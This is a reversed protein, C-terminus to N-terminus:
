LAKNFLEIIRERINEQPWKIRYVKWGQEYLLADKRRDSQARDEQMHQKGDIEIAIKKDTCAFDIFYKGIRLEREYSINMEELIRMAISEPYSHSFKDRIRWGFDEGAAHRQYAIESLNKSMDKRYELDKWKAQASCSRSCTNQHRKNFGIEFTKNCNACSKTIRTTPKLTFTRSVKENISSRNLKTSFSRACKPTCFRGSGYSGEHQSQCNECNLM